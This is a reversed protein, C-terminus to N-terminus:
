PMILYIVDDHGFGQFAGSTSRRAELTFSIRALGSGTKITFIVRGPKTKSFDPWVFLYHGTAEVQIKRIKVGSDAEVSIDTFNEGSVLLMPNPLTSWWNPPEVKNVVPTLAWARISFLIVALLRAIGDRRCHRETLLM